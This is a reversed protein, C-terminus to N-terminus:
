NKKCWAGTALEAPLMLHVPIPIKKKCKEVSFAM